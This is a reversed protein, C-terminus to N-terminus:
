NCPFRRLYEAEPPLGVSARLADLHGPDELAGPSAKGGICQVQSGYRQPKNDFMVAIRDYLLAYQSGDAEDQKVMAEIKPLTARMLDPDNVAHQVILFAAAAAKRGVVSKRFWGEPPIIKRLAEQDTLDHAQIETRLTAEALPRQDEALHPLDIKEEAVRGAQDLDLMRELRERDSTAPPLAAQEREVKVYAEHVPAILAVAEPTLATQASVGNAALLVCLALPRRM